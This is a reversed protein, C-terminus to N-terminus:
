GKITRNPHDLKVACYNKSHPIAFNGIRKSYVRELPLKDDFRGLWEDSNLIQKCTEYGSIVVQFIYSETICFDSACWEM